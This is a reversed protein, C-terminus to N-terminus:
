RGPAIVYRSLLYLAALVSVAYTFVRSSRRREEERQWPLGFHRTARHGHLTLGVALWLVLRVASGVLILERAGESDGTVVDSLVAGLLNTLMQYVAMVTALWWGWPARQLLGVTAVAVWGLFGVQVLTQDPLDQGSSTLARAGPFLFGAALLATWLAFVGIVVLIPLPHRSAPGHGGGPDGGGEGEGRRLPERPARPAEPTGERPPTSSRAKRSRRKAM